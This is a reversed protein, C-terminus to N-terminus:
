KYLVIVDESSLSEWSFMCGFKGSSSTNAECFVWSRSTLLLQSNGQAKGMILTGNWIKIYDIYIGEPISWSFTKKEKEVITVENSIVLKKNYDIVNDLFVDSVETDLESANM